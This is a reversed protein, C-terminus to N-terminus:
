PATGGPPSPGPPAVRGQQRLREGPPFAGRPPGAPPLPGEGAWALAERPIFCLRFAALLGEAQISHICSGISLLPLMTCTGLSFSARKSGRNAPQSSVSTQDTTCPQMPLAQASLKSQGRAASSHTPSKRKRPPSASAGTARASAPNRGRSSALPTAKATGWFSLQSRSSSSAWPWRPLGMVRYAMRFSGPTNSGPFSRALRSFSGWPKVKSGM